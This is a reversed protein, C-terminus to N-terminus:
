LVKRLVFSYIGVLGALLLSILGIYDGNRVYFTSSNNIHLESSIAVAINKTTLVQIDGRQDIIGSIGTNASRVVSRRTEIARIRSYGFHQWIGSAGKWWGDNTLVAIYQAGNEVLQRVHNGFVSEFCIVPGIKQGSKSILNIPEDGASLGGKIGGLDLMVNPLFSFYESLPAKEVGAVLINKHSFQVRHSTDLLIASNFRVFYYEGSASQLATASKAESDGLKIHSIAGAVMSVHPFRNIIRELSKLSSDNLQNSDEWVPPLATEPMLVLDTSDTIKGETLAVLRDVQEKESMGTFKETYPDINPQVVVVKQILGNESYNFYLYLSLIVPLLIVIIIHGIPKYFRLVLFERNKKFANFIIVNVILMWLSGGWAGTYEYWQIIEVNNAFGNGLTLWPWPLLGHHNLFEYALWFIVLSFLGSAEGMKLQVKSKGWWVFAMLLANLSTVFLMGLVSVYAIWWTSLVNWMLFALFSFLFSHYLGQARKQQFIFSDAFLLPVFAVFLTWGFGHVIWPFSLLIGSVLALCYLHIKRM